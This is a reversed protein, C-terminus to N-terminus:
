SNWEAEILAARRANRRWILLPRSITALFLIGLTFSIATVPPKGDDVAGDVSEAHSDAIQTSVRDVVVDHKALDRAQWPRKLVTGSTISVQKSERAGTGVASVAKQIPISRDTVLRVQSVAPAPQVSLLHSDVASATAAGFSLAIAAIAAFSFTSVARM